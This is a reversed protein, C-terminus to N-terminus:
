RAWRLSFPLIDAVPKNRARAWQHRAKYGDGWDVLLRGALDALSPTLRFTSAPYVLFGAKHADERTLPDVTGPTAAEPPGLVEYIGMFVTEPKPRGRVGRAVGIFMSVHTAQEYAPKRTPSQIRIYSADLGDFRPDGDRWAQYLNPLRPDAHRVLLVSDPNLGAETLMANFTDPNTAM